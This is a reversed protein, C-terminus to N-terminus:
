LDALADRETQGSVSRVHEPQRGAANPDETGKRPWSPTLSRTSECVGPRLLTPMRVIRRCWVASRRPARLISWQFLRFLRVLSPPRWSPVGDVHDARAARRVEMRRRG